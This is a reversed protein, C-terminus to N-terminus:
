LGYIRVWDVQLRVQDPTTADRPPIWNKGYPGIDQQIALHMSRPPITARETSRFIEQGDIFGAVHDPTWEVAYDHWQTFDGPTTTGVQSNDKGYHLVFHAEDRQGNPIEAFDIEGGKPFDEADPWLLIVAGYGTGQDVRARVEWRGYEQGDSWAMGASSRGHSTITMVGDAVSINKPDHRGVGGTTEGTYTEWLSEDLSTGDFEDHAALPWNNRVAAEADSRDNPDLESRGEPAIPDNTDRGAEDAPAPTPTPSPSPPAAVDRGSGGTGAVSVFLTVLVAVTAVALLVLLVRRRV